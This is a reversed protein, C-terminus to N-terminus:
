KSITANKSLRHISIVTSIAGWSVAQEVATRLQKVTYIIVMDAKEHYIFGFILYFAIKLFVCGAPQGNPM